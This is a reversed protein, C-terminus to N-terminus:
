LAATCFACTRLRRIRRRARAGHRSHGGGYGRGARSHGYPGDRHGLYARLRHHVSGGRRRFIRGARRSGPRMRIRGSQGRRAGCRSEGVCVIAKMGSEVLARVKKNVMADTEGFMERRESHGVICWTCGVDKLMPISIEGTYAGSAEWHVNQAGVEINSKDFDLVTFVSRLDIAPPCLVVDVKDWKRDYHNSVGQSLVVSEAPTMNMKWNGAIIPKRAM